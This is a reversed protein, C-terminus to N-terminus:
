ENILAILRVKVGLFDLIDIVSYGYDFIDYFIRVANYLNKNKLEYIYKEFHQFSINSCVQKCLDITIETEELIYIKELYNIMIRISGNSLLM